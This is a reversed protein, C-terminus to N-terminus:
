YLTTFWFFPSIALLKGLELHGFDQDTLTEGGRVLGRKESHPRDCLRRSLVTSGKRHTCPPGPARLNGMM